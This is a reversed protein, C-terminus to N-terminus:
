PGGTFSRSGGGAQGGLMASPPCKLGSAVKPRRYSVKMAAKSRLYAVKMKPKINCVSEYAKSLTAQALEQDQVRLILSDHVSLSPIDQNMLELMTQIIAESELFQLRAWGPLDAKGWDEFIPYRAEVAARVDAVRAIKSLPRGHKKKFESSIRSPWRKPHKNSGFTATVWAKVVERPLGKVLYPDKSPDFSQGTVGLLITLQSATVDIEVVPSGNLTMLLRQARPFSQYTEGVGYLRGGKDWTYGALKGENFIRRYGYHPGGGIQVKSLFENIRRVKNQLATERAAIIIGIEWGPITRGRNDKESPAKLVVPYDPLAQEFHRKADLVEIGAQRALTLLAGTAKFRSALGGAKVFSKGTEDFDNKRARHRGPRHEVLSLRKLSDLVATFQRYNVGGDTFTAAQLSRYCWGNSAESSASVLLDALFAGVTTRLRGYRMMKKRTGSTIEEAEITDTLRDVLAKSEPTVALANLAVYRAGDLRPDGHDSGPRKLADEPESLTSDFM